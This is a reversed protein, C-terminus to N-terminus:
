IVESSFNLGTDGHDNEILTYLNVLLSKQQEHSIVAPNRGLTIPMTEDYVRFCYRWYTNIDVQHDMVTAELLLKFMEEPEDGSVASNMIFNLMLSSPQLNLAKTKEFIRKSLDYSFDQTLSLCKCLFTENANPDEVVM